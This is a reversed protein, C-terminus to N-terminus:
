HSRLLLPEITQALKESFNFILNVEQYLNLVESGTKKERSRKTHFNLVAAIIIANDDGKGVSLNTTLKSSRSFKQTYSRNGM